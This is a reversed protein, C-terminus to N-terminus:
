VNLKGNSSVQDVATPLKQALLKLAADVPLGLQRAIQQVQENSLATRLQDATIPRNSGNSLWSKVQEDFRDKRLKEAIGQLGGLGAKALIATVVAPLADAEAQALADKLAGGAKDFFTVTKIRRRTQFSFICCQGFTGLGSLRDLCMRARYYQRDTVHFECAVKNCLTTGIM